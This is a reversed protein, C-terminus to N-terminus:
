RKVKRKGRIRGRNLLSQTLKARNLTASVEAVSQGAQKAAIALKLMKTPVNDLTPVLSKLAEPTYRPNNPKM